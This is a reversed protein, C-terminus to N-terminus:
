ENFYETIIKEYFSNTAEIGILMDEYEDLITYIEKVNEMSHRRPIRNFLAILATSTITM